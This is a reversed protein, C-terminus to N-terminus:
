KEEKVKDAAKIMGDYFKFKKYQEAQEERLEFGKKSRLEENWALKKLRISSERLNNRKDRLERKM